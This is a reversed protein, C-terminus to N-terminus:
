VRKRAILAECYHRFELADPAVEAWVRANASVDILRIFETSWRRFRPIDEAPVGMLGTIARMTLPYAFDAVLDHAAHGRRAALLEDAVREIHPRLQAVIRPT